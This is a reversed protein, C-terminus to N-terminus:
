RTPKSPLQTIDALERALKKADRTKGAAQVAEIARESLTVLKSIEDRMARMM